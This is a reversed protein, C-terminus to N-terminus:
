YDGSHFSSIRRCHDFVINLIHFALGVYFKDIFHVGDKNLLRINSMSTIPYLDLVKIKYKKMIKLAYENFRMIRDNSTINRWSEPQKESRVSTTSLWILNSKRVGDVATVSDILLKVYWELNVSYWLDLTDHKMKLSIGTDHLGTNFIIYSPPLKMKKLYGLFINEQTFEYEETQYEVDKAFDVQLYEIEASKPCQQLYTKCSMCDPCGRNRMGHALPGADAPISINHYKTTAPIGYYNAFNCVRDIMKIIKGGGLLELFKEAVVVM